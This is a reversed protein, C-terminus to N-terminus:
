FVVKGEEIRLVKGAPLSALAKESIDAATIFIQNGEFGRILREQREADLESMVDDLLLVADEGTETRILEQEALRLALAATRQQGQSGYIRLDRDNVTIALDDRHPGIETSRSALDRERNRKLAELFAGAGPSGASGEMTGGEMTGKELARASAGAPVNARYAIKLVEDEGTIKGGNKAAAATLREVYEAREKM